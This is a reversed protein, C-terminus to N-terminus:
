TNKERQVIFTQPKEDSIAPIHYPKFGTATIRLKQTGDVTVSPVKLIFWGNEDTQTHYQALDVQANAVPQQQTDQVQGSLRVTIAQAALTVVGNSLKIQVPANTLTYGLMDLSITANRDRQAAPIAIFKAEGQANLAAIRKETGMNLSLVGAQHVAQHTMDDKVVVTMDFYEAPKFMLWASIGTLLIGILYLVIYHKQTFKM